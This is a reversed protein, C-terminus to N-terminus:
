SHGNKSTVHITMQAANQSNRLAFLSRCISKRLAVIKGPDTMLCRSHNEQSIYLIYRLDHGFYEIIVM